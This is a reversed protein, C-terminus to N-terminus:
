SESMERVSVHNGSISTVRVRAGKEVFSGDSVVDFYNEGFLARGSPRLVSTAVGEDGKRLGKEPESDTTAVMVEGAAVAPPELTLRQFLKLGGFYKSAVFMGAISAAGAGMLALVSSTLDNLSLGDTGGFRQTAMVLSVLMLVIGGFGAVGFGPIIFLEVLIFVVGSLFLIVELWGATGGLFRSWFFLGFCLGAVLGGVGIGPAALEVYVAIMGIVFLIVTVVRFNLITVLTDVWSSELVVIEDAQQGFRAALQARSDVIGEALGIEVAEAGQVELFQGKKSAELLPGKKWETPDALAELEADSMYSVEDTDAHTVKFVELDMNVMAEAVAPPRGTAKSLARVKSVLDSRIKEPAHRFLFDKDLFIPGADGVFAEDGMLIEECGLSMIAAGSLAERPIYAITTAWSADRLSMAMNVSSEVFGGPSDIEVVVVDADMRKAEALKRDFYAEAFPSIELPSDATGFQILVIKPGDAEAAGVPTPELQIGSLALLFLVILHCNRMPAIRDALLKAAAHGM